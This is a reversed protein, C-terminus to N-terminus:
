TSRSLAVASKDGQDSWDRVRNMVTLIVTAGAQRLIRNARDLARISTQDAEVVLVVALGRSALFEADASHLIPPADILVAMYRGLVQGLFSDIKELGSLTTRGDTAGVAIRDPYVDDSLNVMDSARIGKSMGAALGPHGNAAYRPDPKLANAEIALASVGFEGLERTIDLVLQTTGAGPLVATFLFTSRNHLRRERDLALALRRMQDGVVPDKERAGKWLPISLVAGEVDSEGRVRDRVLDMAVPVAFALFLTIGALLGLGKLTRRGPAVESLSAPMALRVYGPAQTELRVADLREQVSAHQRRLRDVEQQVAQAEPYLRLIKDRRTAMEEVVVQEYRKAEALEAQAIVLENAKAEEVKGKAARIQRELAAKEERQIEADIERIEAEIAIRGEHAPTLGFLKSKLVSKKGMLVTRLQLLEPDPILVTRDSANADLLVQYRAELGGLRAEAAVRRGQAERSTREAEEIWRSLMSSESGPVGLEKASRALQDMKGRIEEQLDAARRGLAETRTDTGSLAQGRARDLYAKLVANVIELLGEQAGGELTVSIYSTDPMRAVRLSSSLRAAADAVSEGAGQWSSRRQDLRDLAELAVDERAVLLLQQNVFETYRPVQSERDEGVTKTTPSVLLMAEASFLPRRLKVLVPIAVVAMVGVIALAVWRHRLLSRIPHVGRRFVAADESHPLTSLPRQM